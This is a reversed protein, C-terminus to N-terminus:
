FKICFNILLFAFDIMSCLVDLDNQPLLLQLLLEPWSEQFIRFLNVEELGIKVLYPDFSLNKLQRSVM